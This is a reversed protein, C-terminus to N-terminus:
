AVGDKRGRLEALLSARPVCNVATPDIVLDFSSRTVGVPWQWPAEFAAPDEPREFRVTSPRTGNLIRLGGVVNNISMSVLQIAQAMGEARWNMHSNRIRFHHKCSEGLEPFPEPKLFGIGHPSGGISQMESQPPPVGYSHELGVRIHFGGSSVRFGHKLSNYEDIHYEDLFEGALRAWLQAFSAATAGKDVPWVHSHVVNALTLWSIAQNGTQTLVPAGQSIDNVLDRLERNSCKPLWAPVCGPAQTLAGLLSFLTELSHHYATRLAVAARQAHDGELQPLHLETLYRFFTPDLSRLFADNREALDEGWACYPQERVAFPYRQM